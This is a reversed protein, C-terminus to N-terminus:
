SLGLWVAPLAALRGTMQDGLENDCVDGFRETKEGDTFNLNVFYGSIYFLGGVVLPRRVAFVLLVGLGLVSGVYDLFIIDM